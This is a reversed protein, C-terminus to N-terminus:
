TSNRRRLPVLWSKRDPDVEAGTGELARSRLEDRTPRKLRPPAETREGTTPTVDPIRDTSTEKPGTGSPPMTRRPVPETPRDLGGSTSSSPAYPSEPDNIYRERGYQDGARSGRQGNTRAQPNLDFRYPDDLNRPKQPPDQM